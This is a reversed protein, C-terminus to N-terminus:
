KWIWREAKLKTGQLKQLCEHAKVAVERLRRKQHHVKAMVSNHKQDESLKTSKTALRAFVKRKSSKAIVRPHIYKGIAGFVLKSMENGLKSYQSGNKTVLVFDCQPKLLPRVFNIYGDLIKMSTDTLYLTDILSLTLDTNERQRLIAQIITM